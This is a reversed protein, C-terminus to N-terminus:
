QSQRSWLLSLSLSLAFPFPVRSLCVSQSQARNLRWWRHMCSHSRIMMKENTPRSKHWKMWHELKRQRVFRFCVSLSLSVVLEFKSGEGGCMCVWDRARSVRAPRSFFWSPFLFSDIFIGFFCFMFSLLLPFFFSAACFRRLILLILILLIRSFLKWHMRLTTSSQPLTAWENRKKRRREQGEGPLLDYSLYLTHKSFCVHESSLVFILFSSQQKNANLMSHSPVNGATLKLDRRRITRWWRELLLRDSARRNYGISQRFSEIKMWISPFFPFESLHRALIDEPLCLRKWSEKIKLKLTLWYFVWWIHAFDDVRTYLRQM